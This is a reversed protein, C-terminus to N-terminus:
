FTLQLLLLLWLWVTHKGAAQQALETQLQSSFPSETSRVHRTSVAQEAVSKEMIIGWGRM